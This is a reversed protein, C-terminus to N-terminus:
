ENTEEGKNEEEPEMMEIAMLVPELYQKALKEAEQIKEAEFRGLLKFYKTKTDQFAKAIKEVNTRESLVEEVIKYHIGALKIIIEKDNEQIDEFIYERDDTGEIIWYWVPDGEFKIEKRKGLLFDKWSNSALYYKNESKVVELVEYTKTPIDTKEICTLYFTIPKIRVVYLGFIWMLAFIPIYTYTAEILAYYYIIYFAGFGALAILATPLVAIVWRPLEPVYKIRRIALKSFAFAIMCIIVTGIIYALRDLFLTGLTYKPAELYAKYTQHHFKFLYKGNYYVLCHRYGRSTPFELKDTVFENNSVQIFYTQTRNDSPVMVTKIITENGVVEKVQQSKPIYSVITLNIEGSKLPSYVYVILTNSRLTGYLPLPTLGYQPHEYFFFFVTKDSAIVGKYFGKYPMEIEPLRFGSYKITLALAIIALLFLFFYLKKGPKPLKM